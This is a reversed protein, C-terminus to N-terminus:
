PQQEINGRALKITVFTLAQSANPAIEDKRITLRAWYAIMNQVTSPSGTAGYPEITLTWRLGDDSRGTTEGIVIPASIGIAELQSQGLVSARMLFDARDENRVAGSVGNLLGALFLALIAFAALSEVLTFGNRTKVVGRM